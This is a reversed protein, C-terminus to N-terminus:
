KQAAIRGGLTEKRGPLDSQDDAVKSFRLPFSAMSAWQLFGHIGTM